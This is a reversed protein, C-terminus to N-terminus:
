WSSSSGGGGFSGGGGSFGGGGSSFGGGGSWGGGSSGGWGGTSRFGGHRKMFKKGPTTMALFVRILAGLLIWAGAMAMGVYPHLLTAPFLGMFPILFVWLFWGSCGETVLARWAFVSLIMLFFGFFALRPGLPGDPHIGTAPPAALPIAELEGQLAGIIADVGGEVGQSFRGDRFAPRVVNNLIRGTQADTLRGEAGYGVEIRMKRDNKAILLLVGDDQEERGLGWTEAVRLSFDELPEGELSEITLVAVQAGTAQELGALKEAVRTETAEDVMGALDNVRGSLYPVELAVVPVACALALLALSLRWRSSGDHSRIREM